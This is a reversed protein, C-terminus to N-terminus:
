QKKGPYNKNRTFNLKMGFLWSAGSVPNSRDWDPTTNNTFNEAQVFCKLLPHFQYEVTFNFKTIAPTTIYFSDYEPYPGPGSPDIKSTEVYYAYLDHAYMKGSSVMAVTASFRDAKGFIKPCSYNLSLGGSYGPSYPVKDGKFYVKGYNDFSDVYVSKIISYNGSVNFNGYGYNASFEWGKNTYKGTNIWIVDTHRPYGTIPRRITQFLFGNTVVNDYRIIEAKIKGDKSYVELAYEPGRQDQQKIDPNALYTVNPNTSTNARPHKASYPPPSIGVGYNIRPKLIFGGANFNATFGIRPNFAPDSINSANYRAAAVFFYKDKISPAVQLFASSNVISHNLLPDNSEYTSAQYRYGTNRAYKILNTTGTYRTDYKSYEFGSLINIRFTNSGNDLSITNVYRLNKTCDNLNLNIFYLGRGNVTYYNLLATDRLVSVDTYGPFQNQTYGVVLDHTWWPTPKYTTRFALTGTNVDTHNKYYAVTKELMFYKYPDPIDDYVSKWSNEMRATNYSSNLEFNLKGTRYKFNAYTSTATLSGHPLYDQQTRYNGGISYGFNKIGQSIEISHRQQFPRKVYASNQFGASTTADITTKDTREKKTFILIVGGNAGSGYIAAVSAGRVVEIRDINDKNLMALYHVGAAFEVGDVYVKVPEQSADEGGLMSGAGRIQVTSYTLSEQNGVSTITVGPVVGTLLRDITQGPMNQLDKATLVTVSSIDAKRQIEMMNGSVVVQSLPSVFVQLQVSVVDGGIIMEMKKYGVSSFVLVDGKDAELSYNGDGDTTTGTKSNKIFVSVGSIPKGEEDTVKGTVRGQLGSDNHKVANLGTVLFINPPPTEKVNVSGANVKVIASFLVIVSLKSKILLM